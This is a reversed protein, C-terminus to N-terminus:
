DETDAITSTGGPLELKRQIAGIHAPDITGVVNVITFERPESALIAFGAPKDNQIAIFVDVNENKKNSHIQALSQWQDKQLQKRVSEIDDKSYVYDADFQYSRIYVAHIGALLKKIETGDEDKEPALMSALNLVIPGVTVDVSEIAKSQLHAFDPLKLRGVEAGSSVGWILLASAALCSRLVM